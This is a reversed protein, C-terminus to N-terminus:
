TLNLKALQEQPAGALQIKTIQQPTIKTSRGTKQCSSFRKLNNSPTKTPKSSICSIEVFNDRM